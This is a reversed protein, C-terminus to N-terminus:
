DKRAARKAPAKKPVTGAPAEGVAEAPESAEVPEAYGNAILDVGEHDPVDLTGGPRPWEEGNRSGTINTLMRVRM